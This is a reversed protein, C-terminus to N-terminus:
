MFLNAITEVIPVRCVPCLPQECGFMIQETCGKCLCVHKCPLLLVNKENEMCAVCIRTADLTPQPTSLGANVSSSGLAMAESWPKGNDGALAINTMHDELDEFAARKAAAQLETQGM